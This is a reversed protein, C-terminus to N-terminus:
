KEGAYHVNIENPKIFRAEDGNSSSLYININYKNFYEMALTVIDKFSRSMNYNFGISHNDPSWDSNIANGNDDVALQRYPYNPLKRETLGLAKLDNFFSYASATNQSGSYSARAMLINAPIPYVERIYCRLYDNTPITLTIKEDRVLLESKVEFNSTNLTMTYTGSQLLSDPILLLGDSTCLTDTDGPFRGCKGEDEKGVLRILLDHGNITYDFKLNYYHSSRKTDSFSFRVCRGEKTFIEHDWYLGFGGASELKQFSIDTNSDKDCGFLALVSVLLTFVTARM